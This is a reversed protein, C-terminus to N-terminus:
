AFAVSASSIAPFKPQGFSRSYITGSTLSYQATTSLRIFPVTPNNKFEATQAFPRVYGAPIGPVIIPQKAMLSAPPSSSPPLRIPTDDCSVTIRPSPSKNVLDTKTQVDHKSKTDSNHHLHHPKERTPSNQNHYRALQHYIDEPSSPQLRLARKIDVSLNYSSIPDTQGCDSLPSAPNESNDSDVEPKETRNGVISEISFGIKPKSTPMAMVPTPALPMM